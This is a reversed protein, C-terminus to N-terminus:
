YLKVPIVTLGKETQHKKIAFIEVKNLLLKLNNIKKPFPNTQNQVFQVNTLFLENKTTFTVYARSIDFQGNLIM